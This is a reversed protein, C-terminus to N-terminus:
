RDYRHEGLAMVSQERLHVALERGAREGHTSRVGDIISGSRLTKCLRLLYIASTVTIRTQEANCKMRVTDVLESVQYFCTLNSFPEIALRLGAAPSLAM